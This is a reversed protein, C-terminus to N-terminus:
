HKSTKQLRESRRPGKATAEDSSSSSSTDSAKKAARTNYSAGGPKAAKAAKKKATEGAQKADNPAQNAKSSEADRAKAAGTVIQIVNKNSAASGTSASNASKTSDRLETKSATAGENSRKSQTAESSGPKTFTFATNTDFMKANEDQHVSATWEPTRNDSNAFSIETTQKVRAYLGWGTVILLCFILIRTEKNVNSKNPGIINVGYTLRLCSDTYLVVRRRFDGGVSVLVEAVEVVEDEQNIVIRNSLRSTYLLTKESIMDLQMSTEPEESQYMAYRDSRDEQSEVNEKLHNWLCLMEATVGPYTNNRVTLTGDSEETVGSDSYYVKIDKIDKIDKNLKVHHQSRRGLDCLETHERQDKKDTSMRYGIYMQYKDENNKGKRKPKSNSDVGTDSRSAGSGTSSASGDSTSAENVSSTEESRKHGNEGAGEPKQSTHGSTPSDDSGTRISGDKHPTHAVKEAQPVDGDKVPTRRDKCASIAKNVAARVKLPLLDFANSFARTYPDTDINLTHTSTLTQIYRKIQNKKAYIPSSTMNMSWWGSSPPKKSGHLEILQTFAHYMEKKTKLNQDLKSKYSLLKEIISSLINRYTSSEKLFSSDNYLREADLVHGLIRESRAIVDDVLKSSSYTGEENLGCHRTKVDTLGREKETADTEPTEWNVILTNLQEGCLKTKQMESNILQVGNRVEIVLNKSEQAWTTASEVLKELYPHEDDDYAKKSRDGDYVSGDQVEIWSEYQETEYCQSKAQDVSSALCLVIDNGNHKIEVYQSM